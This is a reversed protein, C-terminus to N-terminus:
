NFIQISITGRKPDRHYTSNLNQEYRGYGDLIGPNKSLDDLKNLINEINGKTPPHKQSSDTTKLEDKCLKLVIETINRCEVFIKKTLKRIEDEVNNNLNSLPNIDAMTIIKKLYKYTNDVEDYFINLQDEFQM